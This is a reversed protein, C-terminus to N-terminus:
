WEQFMKGLFRWAYLLSVGRFYRKELFGTSVSRLSLIEKRKRLLMRCHCMNWWVALFVAGSSRLRFRFLYALLFGGVVLAHLFLVVFVYPSVVCKLIVAIRNKFSHFLITEHRMKKTTMSREHYVHAAPQYCLTFGAIRARFCLDLDDQYLFFDEDFGGLTVYKNRDIMLAAATAGFIDKVGREQSVFAEMRHPYVGFGYWTYFFGESEILNTGWQLICPQCAFLHDNKAFLPVIEAFVNKELVADDNL